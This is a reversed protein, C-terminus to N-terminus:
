LAKRYVHMVQAPNWSVPVSIQALPELRPRAAATGDTAGGTAAGPSAPTAAAAGKRPAMIDTYSICVAGPPLESALKGVAQACCPPQPASNHQPPIDPDCDTGKIRCPCQSPRIQICTSELFGAVEWVGVAASGMWGSM